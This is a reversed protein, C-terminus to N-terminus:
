LGLVGLAWGLVRPGWEERIEFFGELWRERLWVFVFVWRGGGVIESM